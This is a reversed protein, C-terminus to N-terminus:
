DSEGYYDDVEKKLQRFVDAVSGAKLTQKLESENAFIGSTLGVHTNEKIDDSSELIEMLTNVCINGKELIIRNEFFPNKREYRGGIVFVPTLNERRGKIDRYLFQVTDLFTKMREAREAEPISIEGDIGIRELDVTISYAYFARHIESQAIGNELNQRRALGMNTLFELDSQYPELAVANSLRVVASRTSAGGKENKGEEKSSTKMYGFLDIEPYDRITASPAFQVVGSKGDVPTTDWGAQQMMNYRMAQRSIYTYQEYNGRSMKKLASINGVGEGYNASEALFVMTLTLGQRNM